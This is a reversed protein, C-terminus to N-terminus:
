KLCMWPELFSFTMSESEHAIMHVPMAAIKMINTNLKAFQAFITLRWIEICIQLQITVQRENRMRVGPLTAVKLCVRICADNMQLRMKM